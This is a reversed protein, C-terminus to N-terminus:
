AKKSKTPKKTTTKSKAKPKSKGKSPQKAKSGKSKSTSSPKLSKKTSSGGKVAKPKSKPKSKKKLTLSNLPVAEQQYMPILGSTNDGFGYVPEETKKANPPPELTCGEDDCMIDRM